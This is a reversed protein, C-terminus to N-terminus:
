WGHAVAMRELFGIMDLGHDAAVHDEIVSEVDRMIGPEETPYEVQWKDCPCAIATFGILANVQLGGARYWAQGMLSDAITDRWKRWPPVGDPVIIFREVDVPTGARHRVPWTITLMQELEAAGIQHVTLYDAFERPDAINHDDRLHDAIADEIDLLPVNPLYDVQWTGCPCHSVTRNAMSNFDLLFPEEGGVDGHWIGDRHQFRIVDIEIKENAGVDVALVPVHGPWQVNAFPAPASWLRKDEVDTLAGPPVTFSLIDGADDDDDPEDVAALPWSHANRCCHHAPREGPRSIPDHHWDGCVNSCHPCPSQCAASIPIDTPFHDRVTVPGDDWWLHQALANAVYRRRAHASRFPNPGDYDGDREANEICYLIDAEYGDRTLTEPGRHSPAEYVIPLLRLGHGNWPHYEALESHSWDCIPSVIGGPSVVARTARRPYTCWECPPKDGFWRVRDSLVLRTM